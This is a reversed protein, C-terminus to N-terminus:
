GSITIKIFLKNKNFLSCPWLGLPGRARPENEDDFRNKFVFFFFVGYFFLFYMRYRKLIM